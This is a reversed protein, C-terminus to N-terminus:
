ATTTYTNSSTANVVENSISLASSIYGPIASKLGIVHTRSGATASAVVDPMTKYWGTTLLTQNLSECTFIVPFAYLSDIAQLETFMQDEESPSLVNIAMTGTQNRQRNLVVDGQVGVEEQTHDENRSITVGDPGFNSITVPGILLTIDAPDYTFYNYSM